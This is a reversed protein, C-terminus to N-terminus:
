NNANKKESLRELLQKLKNSSIEKKIHGLPSDIGLSLVLLSSEYTHSLGLVMKQEVFEFGIYILKENSNLGGLSHLEDNLEVKLRNKFDNFDLFDYLLSM